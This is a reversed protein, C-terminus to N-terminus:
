QVNQLEQLRAKTIRAVTSGGAGLTLCEVMAAIKTTYLPTDGDIAVATSGNRGAWLSGSPTPNASLYSSGEAIFSQVYRGERIILRIALSTREATSTSGSYDSGVSYTGSLYRRSRFRFDSAGVKYHQVQMIGEDGATAGPAAGVSVAYGAGPMSLTDVIMDVAYLNAKDSTDFGYTTSDWEVAIICGHNTGSSTLKFGGAAATIEGTQTDPNVRDLLYVSAKPTTGDAEYLTEPGAGLTLTLDSIDTTFDVENLTSWAPGGAAAARSYDHLATAVVVGGITADLALVGADGDAGGSPTYAGLGTGSWSTSGAANVTRATYGDILGADTGTFASFTKASLAVGAATAETTAAPPSVDYTTAGGGGSPGGSAGTAPDFCPVIPM